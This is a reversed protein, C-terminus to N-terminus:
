AVVDPIAQNGVVGDFSLKFHVFFEIIVLEIQFGDVFEALRCLNAFLLGIESM